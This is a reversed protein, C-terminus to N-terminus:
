VLAVLCFKGSAVGVVRFRMLLTSVEGKEDRKKIWFELSTNKMMEEGNSNGDAPVRARAVCWTLPENATWKPFETELEDYLQTCIYCGAWWAAIIDRITEQHVKLLKAPVDAEATTHYLIPQM